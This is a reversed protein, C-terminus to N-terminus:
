AGSPQGSNSAANVHPNIKLSVNPAVSSFAVLFAAAIGFISYM